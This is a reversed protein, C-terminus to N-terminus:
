KCTPGPPRGDSNNSVGAKEREWVGGEQPWLVRKGKNYGQFCDQTAKELLKM